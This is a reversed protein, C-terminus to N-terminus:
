SPLLRLSAQRPWLWACALPLCHPECWRHICCQSYPWACASHGLQRCHLCRGIMEQWIPCLWGIEHVQALLAGLEAAALAREDGRQLDGGRRILSLRERADVADCGLWAGLVEADGNPNGWDPISAASWPQQGCLAAAAESARAAYETSSPLLWQAQPGCEYVTESLEVVDTRVGFLVFGACLVRFLAHHTYIAGFAFESLWQGSANKFANYSAASPSCGARHVRGCGTQWRNSCWSLGACERPAASRSM